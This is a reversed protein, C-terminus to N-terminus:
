VVGALFDVRYAADCRCRATESAPAGFSTDGPYMLLAGSPSRFPESLGQIKQGDMVAHTHRVRLDSADRWTRTIASESVKGQDAAQRYAELKAAQLSRLAETLGIVDGRHKLARNKYAAVMKQRLEAPIPQGERIAKAVSRDFRRDRLKRTLVDASPPTSSLGAEYNAVWGTQATTLGVYGGERKGSVRSIRGVIDLATTRPNAGQAMRNTLVTRVATRQDDLIGTVLESSHQRLWVEARANRADFRIVMALSRPPVIGSVAAQGGAVYSAQLADYLPGLAAPELNLADMAALIDGRSLAAIVRQLDAGARLDAIAARFADAIEKEYRTLLEDFLQHQTPRRAM